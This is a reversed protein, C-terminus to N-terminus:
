VAPGYRPARPRTIAGAVAPLRRLVRIAYKRTYGTTAVFEDLITSKQTHGAVQYRAATQALLERKAQFSM